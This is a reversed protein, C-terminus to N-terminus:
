MILVLREEFSTIMGRKRARRAEGAKASVVFSLPLLLRLRLFGVEWAVTVAAALFVVQWALPDATLVRMVWNVLSTAVISVM